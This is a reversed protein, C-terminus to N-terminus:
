FRGSISFNLSQSTTVANAANHTYLLMISLGNKLLLRGGLTLLWQKSEQVGDSFSYIPSSLRPDAYTMTAEGAGQLNRQYAVRAQPTLLGVPVAIDFQGRLGLYATDNRVSQSFYTLAGPGGSETYRGLTARALDLRVYPAVLWDKGRWEYGVTTSGFVQHGKRSGSAVVGTDTIRRTLDFHLAGYGALVDIYLHDLPRVSAYAVGMIGQGNSSASDDDALYTNRSYGAGLGATIMRSFRYDGGFSVGSTSLRSGSQVASGKQSALDLVGSIWWAIDRRVSAGTAQPLDPMKDNQGSTATPASSAGLATKRLGARLYALESGQYSVIDGVHAWTTPERLPDNTQGFSLGFSSQAGSDGHLSELRQTFNALHATAFRQVAQNQARVISRVAANQAPDALAAYTFGATVTATGSAAVVVIDVSGPAHASTIVVLETDSNSIIRAAAGGFSVSSAGALRAGSITVRTNGLASGTAPSVSGATPRISAVSVSVSSSILSNNSSDGNYVASLNHSGVALTSLTLSASPGSLPVTGLTSAGDMFSVTGTPSAGGALTATLTLPAQENLTAASSALSLTPTAKGMSVTVAASTAATNNSDGSYQASINHSGIALTSTSFSATGSAVAVTALTAGGDRFIVTGSPTSGTITATLTVNSGLSASTPSASLAVAAAVKGVTVTVASSNSAANYTDGSYNATITHTGSPLTNIALSASGGSISATGLTTGGDMFTVTGTASAGGTLTASLTVMTGYTVSTSSTSLVLSPTLQTIAVTAISSTVAANISDGSYEASLSHTGITLTNTTFTATGGSVGITGLTTSGDKFTVTGGPAAGSVSATLTITSGYAASASSPNLVVTPTLKTVVLTTSPSTASNNYSDGAFV